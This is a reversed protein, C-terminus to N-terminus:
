YRGRAYFCSGFRECKFKTSWVKRTKRVNEEFLRQHRSRANEKRPLRVRSGRTARGGFPVNHRKRNPLKNRKQSIVCCLLDPFVRVLCSLLPQPTQAVYPPAIWERWLHREHCSRWNMLLALTDSSKNHAACTILTSLEVMQRGLEAAM